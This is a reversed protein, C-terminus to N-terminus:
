LHCYTWVVQGAVREASASLPKPLEACASNLKFAVLNTSSTPHIAIPTPVTLIPDWKM